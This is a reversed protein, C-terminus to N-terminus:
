EALLGKADALVDTNKSTLGWEAIERRRIPDDLIKLSKLVRVLQNWEYDDDVDIVAKVDDMLRAGLTSGLGHGLEDGFVVELAREGTKLVSHRQATCALSLAGQVLKSWPDSCPAENSLSVEQM